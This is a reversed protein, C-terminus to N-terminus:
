AVRSPSARRPKKRRPNVAWFPGRVIDSAHIEGPSAPGRGGSDQQGLVQDDADAPVDALQPGAV